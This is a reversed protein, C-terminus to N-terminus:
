LEEYCLEMYFDGIETKIPILIIKTNDPYKLSHGQGNITTPIAMEIFFGLPNLDRKANGMVMNSIEAGVDAIDKCFSTYPEGLMKESMKFYTPYPWSLVMLGKFPIKKENRVLNGNMGIVASVDGRSTSDAKLEPKAPAISNLFVMTQFVNKVADVFPKSFTLFSTNYDSM